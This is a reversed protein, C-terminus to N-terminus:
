SDGETEARSQQGRVFEYRRQAILSAAQQKQEISPFTITHGAVQVQRPRYRRQRAAQHAKSEPKAHYKRDVRARTERYQEAHCKHCRFHQHKLNTAPIPREKCRYCMVCPPTSM